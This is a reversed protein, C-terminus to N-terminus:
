NQPFTSVRIPVISTTRWKRFLFPFCSPQCSITLMRMLPNQTKTFYCVLDDSPWPLTCTDLLLSSSKLHYFFHNIISATSASPVFNVMSAPTGPFHQQGLLYLLSNPSFWGDPNEGATSKLGSCLSTLFSDISSNQRFNKHFSLKLISFPFCSTWSHALIGSLLPLESLFPPHPHNSELLFISVSLVLPAIPNLDPFPFGSWLLSIPSFLKGSLTASQYTILSPLLTSHYASSVVLHRGLIFGLLWRTALFLEPRQSPPFGLKCQHEQGM